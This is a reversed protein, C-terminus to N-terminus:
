GGRPALNLTNKPFLEELAPRRPIYGQEFMRLLVLDRRKKSAVPHMVPDYASPSAVM